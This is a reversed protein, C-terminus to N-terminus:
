EGQRLGFEGMKNRLDARPNETKPALRWSLDSPSLSIDGVASQSSVISIAIM